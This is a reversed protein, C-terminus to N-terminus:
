PPSWNAQWSKFHRIPIDRVNVTMRQGPPWHEPANWWLDAIDWLRLQEGTDLDVVFELRTGIPLPGETQWTTRLIWRPGDV